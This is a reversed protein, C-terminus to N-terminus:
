YYLDGDCMLAYMTKVVPLGAKVRIMNLRDQPVPGLSKVNDYKKKETHERHIDPLVTIFHRLKHMFFQEIFVEKHKLKKVVLGDMCIQVAYLLERFDSKNTDKFKDWIYRDYEHESIGKHVSTGNAREKAEYAERLMKYYYILESNNVFNCISKAFCETIKDACNKLSKPDIFDKLIHSNALPTLLTDYIYGYCKDCM